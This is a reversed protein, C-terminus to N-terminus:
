SSADDRVVEMELQEGGALPLSPGGCAPCPDDALAARFAGGCAACARDTAVHVIELHAGGYEPAELTLHFRFAQDFDEAQTHGGSVLIRVIADGPEVGERRLADVVAAALGAEHM